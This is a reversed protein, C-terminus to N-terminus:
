IEMGTLFADAHTLYEIKDQVRNTNINWFILCTDSRVDKVIVPEHEVDTITTEIAKYYHDIDETCLLQVANNAGLSDAVIKLYKAVDKSFIILKAKTEVM